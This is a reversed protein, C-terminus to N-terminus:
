RTAWKQMVTRKWAPQAAKLPRKQMVTIGDPIPPVPPAAYAPAALLTLTVAAPLILKRM